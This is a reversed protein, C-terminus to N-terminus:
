LSESKLYVVKTFFHRYTSGVKLILIKYHYVVFTLLLTMRHINQTHTHTHTSTLFTRKSDENVHKNEFSRGPTHTPHIPLTPIQQCFNSLYSAPSEFDSPLLSM